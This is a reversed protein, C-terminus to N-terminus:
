PKHTVPSRVSYGQSKMSYGAAAGAAAGAAFWCGQLTCVVMLVAVMKLPMYRKM